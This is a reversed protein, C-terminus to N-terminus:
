EVLWDVETPQHLTEKGEVEYKSLEIGSYKSMGERVLEDRLPVRNRTGMKNSRVVIYRRSQVEYQHQKAEM